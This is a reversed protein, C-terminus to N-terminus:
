AYKGYSHKVNRRDTYIYKMTTDIKEHGLIAAVEQIPMGRNILNTALTRRFRHPHVNEVGSKAEVKKLMRRIGGPAMRETGKGVFMAEHLDTRQLFYRKLMMSTIEDIYVVREKDGKGLVLIEMKYFDVDDRNLACIESIRCGTSLLISIIAKDRDCTCVEKMREIDMGSFPKRVKKISKIAGINAIPNEQILGEKHLWGFFASLVQRVGDLTGDSVGRRKENALYNRMHFVSMKKVPVNVTEYMKKIIYRYREITKHSRGEVRKANLFVELLEGSEIDDGEIPVQEVDYRSFNESIMQMVQGLQEITVVSGISKEIDHLLLQKACISM